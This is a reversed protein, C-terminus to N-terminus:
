ILGRMARRDLERGPDEGVPIEIPNSTSYEPEFAGSFWGHAGSVSNRGGREVHPGARGLSTM